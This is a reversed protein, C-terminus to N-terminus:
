CPPCAPWRTPSRDTVWSRSSGPGPYLSRSTDPQHVHMRGETGTHASATALAQLFLTQDRLAPGRDLGGRRRPCRGAEQRLATALSGDMAAARPRSSSRRPRGPIRRRSRRTSGDEAQGPRRCSRPRQRPCRAGRPRHDRWCRVRDVCGYAAVTDPQGDPWSGTAVMREAVTDTFEQWSDM